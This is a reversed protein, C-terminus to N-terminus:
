HCAPGGASAFWRQIFVDNLRLPRANPAMDMRNLTAASNAIVLRTYEVRLSCPMVWRSVKRGAIGRAGRGDLSLESILKTEIMSGQDKLM